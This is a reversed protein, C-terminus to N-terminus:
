SSVDPILKIVGNGCVSEMSRNWINNEKHFKIRNILNAAELTGKTIYESMDFVDCNFYGNTEVAIIQPIIKWGIISEGNVQIDQQKLWAELAKVYFAIQRYYRYYEVTDKFLSLSKATTKLDNLYIVKKAIDIYINDLRAKCKIKIAEFYVDQEKYIINGDFLGGLNFYKNALENGKLAKVCNEITYKDAQTLTLKGQLKDAQKLYPICEENIKNVLTDEKYSKYASTNFRALRTFVLAQNFSLDTLAALKEYAAKIALIESTRGGETKLNSTIDLNIGKSVETTIIHDVTTLNNKLIYFEDVLDGLMGEPRPIDAVGFEEPKEAYLHVITGNELGKSLKQEEQKDFFSLYRQPSGGQTPDIYSLSSSSVVIDERTGVNYYDPKTIEM